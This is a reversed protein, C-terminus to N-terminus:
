DSSNSLPSSSLDMQKRRTVHPFSLAQRKLTIIPLPALQPHQWNLGHIVSTTQL